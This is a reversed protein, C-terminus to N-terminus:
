KVLTATKTSDDWSINDNSVGLANAIARLPLYTRSSEIIAPSDLAVDAGNVKMNKANITIAITVDKTTLTATKTSDDWAVDAGLNEALFRVPLMTRSNRNIPAADLEKAVGNVYATKSNITMKIETTGPVGYDATYTHGCACTYVTNEPTNFNTEGASKTFEHTHAEANGSVTLTGLASSISEDAEVSVSINYVGPKANKAVKFTFDAVAINGSKKAGTLDVLVGKVPNADADSFVSTFGNNAAKASVYSMVNSDYGIFVRAGSIGQVNALEVTFTVEAGASATKNSITASASAAFAFVSLSCVLMAVVLLVSIKKM